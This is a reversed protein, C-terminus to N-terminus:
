LYHNSTSTNTEKDVCMCVYAIFMANIIDYFFVSAVCYSERM